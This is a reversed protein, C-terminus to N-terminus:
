ERDMYLGTGDQITTYADAFSEAHGDAWVTGAAGKHRDHILLIGTGNDNILQQGGVSGNWQDAVLLTESPNHIDSEHAPEYLGASGKLRYSSGIYYYNYGYAIWNYRSITNPRNEVDEVGNTYIYSLMDKCTPCKYLAPSGIYDASKLTWAWNWHSYHMGEVNWPIYAGNHDTLYMQKALGIQRLNTLCITTQAIEKASRLAPLMISVLISIIAIVV